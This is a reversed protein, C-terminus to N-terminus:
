CEQETNEEMHADELILSIPYNYRGEIFWKIYSAMPKWLCRYPHCDCIVQGASLGKMFAHEYQLVCGSQRVGTLRITLGTFTVAYLVALSNDKLPRHVTLM